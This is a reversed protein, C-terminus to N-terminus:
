ILVAHLFEKLKPNDILTDVLKVFDEKPFDSDEVSESAKLKYYDNLASQSIM